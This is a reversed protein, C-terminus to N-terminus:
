DVFRYVTGEHVVTVRRGLAAYPELAPIRKLVGARDTGASVEVERLLADPDYAADIWEGGALRFM